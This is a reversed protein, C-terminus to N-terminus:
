LLKNLFMVIGILWMIVVVFAIIKMSDEKSKENKNNM